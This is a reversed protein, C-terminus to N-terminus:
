VDGPLLARPPPVLPNDSVEIVNILKGASTVRQKTSSVVVRNGGERVADWLAEETRHVVTAVTDGIVCSTIGVSITVLLSGQGATLSRTQAVRERLRVAPMLAEECRTAPCLIALQDADYCAVLDADRMIIRAHDAIMANIKDRQEQTPGPSGSLDDVQVLMLSLSLNYRNAESLRRRLEDVFVRRSPLGTTQDTYADVVRELRRDERSRIRPSGVGFAECEQGNHLYSCNRGEQKSTYLAMDARQVLSTREESRLAQALGVSITTKVSVQGIHFRCAEVSCRAREAVKMAEGAPTNPMVIAFEEGGYRAVLDTERCDEEIIEAVQQLVQDGAQHGHTDNLRKFHDIDILMLTLPARQRNWETMRRNLEYEFARRNAVGTLADSLTDTRHLERLRCLERRHDDSLTGIVLAQLGLVGGWVGLSLLSETNAHPWSTALGALFCFLATHCASFRGLFFGALTVPLFYLNLIAFSASNARLAIVTLGVIVALLLLEVISRDRPARRLRPDTVSDFEIRPQPM